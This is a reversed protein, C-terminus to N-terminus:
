TFRPIRILGNENAVYLVCAVGAVMLAAGLVSRANFQVGSSFHSELEAIVQLARAKSSAFARATEWSGYCWSYNGTVCGKEVFPAQLAFSITPDRLLWAKRLLGSSDQIADETASDVGAAEAVDALISRISRYPYLRQAAALVEAESVAGGQIGSMGLQWATNPCTDLDAVKVDQGNKTCLNHRWPNPLNLIGEKLAWWTVLAAARAGVRPAVNERVYEVWKAQQPSLSLNM